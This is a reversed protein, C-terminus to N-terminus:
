FSLQMIAYVKVLYRRHLGAYVGCLAIKLWHGLSLSLRPAPCRVGSRSLARACLVGDWGGYGPRPGCDGGAATHRASVVTGPLSRM